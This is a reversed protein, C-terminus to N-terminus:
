FDILGLEKLLDFDNVVNRPPEGIMNIGKFIEIFYKLTDINDKWITGQCLAAHRDIRSGFAVKSDNLHILKVREIGIIRDIDEYLSDIGEKTGLNYEGRGSIHATDIVLDVRKAIDDPLCALIDALEQITSGLKNGEGASNELLMHRKKPDVDFKTKRTFAEKVNKCLEEYQRKKDVCSGSHVVLQANLLSAVDMQKALCSISNQKKQLFRKDKELKSAGCINITLSSHIFLKIKNEDVYERAAEIDGIDCDVTYGKPSSIYIQLIKGKKVTALLTKEKKVHFGFCEKSDM